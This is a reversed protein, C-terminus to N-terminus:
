SLAEHRSLVLNVDSMSSYLAAESTLCTEGLEVGLGTCLLPLDNLLCSHSGAVHWM